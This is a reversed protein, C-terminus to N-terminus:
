FNLPRREDCILIVMLENHLHTQDACSTQRFQSCEIEARQICKRSCKWWRSDRRLQHAVVQTTSGTSNFHDSWSTLALDEIKCQELTVPRPRFHYISPLLSPVCFILKISPIQDWFLSWPRQSWPQSFRAGLLFFLCVFPRMDGRPRLKAWAQDLLLKSHWQM